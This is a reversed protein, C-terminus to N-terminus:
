PGYEWRWRLVPGSMVRQVPWGGVRHAAGLTPQLAGVVCGADFYCGAQYEMSQPLIATPDAISIMTDFGLKQAQQHRAKRLGPTNRTVLCPKDLWEEPVSDAEVPDLLRMDWEPEGAVVSGLIQTSSRLVSEVIDGAFVSEVGFLVCEAPNSFSNM